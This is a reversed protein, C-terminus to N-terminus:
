IAYSFPGFSSANNNTLLAATGVFTSTGSSNTFSTTTIVIGTGQTYCSSLTAIETVNGASYTSTSVSPATNSLVINFQDTAFQVAATGIYQVGTNYKNFAQAM